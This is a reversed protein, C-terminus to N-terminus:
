GRRWWHRRKSRLVLQQQHELEDEYARLWTTATERRSSRVATSILLPILMLVAIVGVVGGAVLAGIFPLGSLDVHQPVIMTVVLTVAISVIALELTHSDDGARRRLEALVKVQESRPAAAFRALEELTINNHRHVYGSGPKSRM